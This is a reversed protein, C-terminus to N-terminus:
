RSPVAPHNPTSIRGWSSIKTISNIELLKPTRDHGTAADDLLGTVAVKQGILSHLDFRKEAPIYLQIFYAGALCEPENASQQMGLSAPLQLYYAEEIRDTHPNEGYGPPGFFEGKHLIGEVRITGQGPLHYGGTSTIGILCAGVLNAPSAALASFVLFVALM